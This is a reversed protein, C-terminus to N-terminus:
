DFGQKQVSVATLRSRLDEAEAALQRLRSEALDNQVSGGSARKLIESKRDNEERILSIDERARRESELYKNQWTQTEMNLKEIAMVLREIKAEYDRVKPTDVFSDERNNASSRRLKEKLNENEIQFEKLLSRLNTLESSLMAFQASNDPSSLRPTVGSNDFTFRKLEIEQKLESIDRLKEELLFRLKKNEDTLRNFKESDLDSAKHRIRENESTVLTLKEEYERLRLTLENNGNGATKRLEEILHVLKQNDEALQRNQALSLAYSKELNDTATISQPERRLEQVDRRLDQSEKRLQLNEELLEKRERNLRAISESTLRELDEKARRSSEVDNQLLYIKEEHQVLTSKLPSTNSAKLKLEEVLHLLRRNEEMLQINEENKRRLSSSNQDLERILGQLKSELEQIKQEGAVANKQTEFREQREKTTIVLSSLESERTKMLQQLREIENSLHAV